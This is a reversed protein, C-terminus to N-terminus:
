RCSDETYCSSQQISCSAPVLRLRLDLGLCIAEIGTPLPQPLTHPALRRPPLIRTILALRKTIQLAPIHSPCHVVPVAPTTTPHSGTFRLPYTYFSWRRGTPQDNTPPAWIPDGANRQGSRELGGALM